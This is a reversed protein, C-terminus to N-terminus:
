RLDLEHTKLFCVLKSRCKELLQSDTPYAINKEMVTSDVCLHAMSQRTVAGAKVASDLVMTLMWELGEEGLRQRWKILSTPDVPPVHQFVVEGCFFQYYPNSVWATLLREDSLAEMHKLMLLGSVMRASTAQPGGATSFQKQWYNEFVEWEIRDALGVLSHNM